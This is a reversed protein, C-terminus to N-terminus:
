GIESLNVPATLKKGQRRKSYALNHSVEGLEINQKIAIPRGFGFVGPRDDIVDISKGLVRTM